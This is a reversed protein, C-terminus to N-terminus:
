CSIARLYGKDAYSLLLRDRTLLTYDYERATAAIIKDAPDRLPSDPLFSSAVLVDTTMDALLLSARRMVLEFWRHPSQSLRLRGKSVLLGIEWASIPSVYLAEGNQYANQIAMTADQSGDGEATLFILACTDILFTM